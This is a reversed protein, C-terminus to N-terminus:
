ARSTAELEAAKKAEKFSDFDGVYSLEDEPADLRYVYWATAKAEYIKRRAMWLVPMWLPELDADSLRMLVCTNKHTLWKLKTM